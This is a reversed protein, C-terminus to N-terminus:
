DEDEVERPRVTRVPHTCKTPNHQHQWWNRGCAVPEQGRGPRRDLNDCVMDHNFRHGRPLAHCGCDAAIRKLVRTSFGMGTWREIIAPSVPKPKARVQRKPHDEVMGRM